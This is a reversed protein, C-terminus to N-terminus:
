SRKLEMLVFRHGDRVMHGYRVFGCKAFCNQARINSELTKLYIRNLSTEQFIHNVLATVADTGYGKNWYNRNGIVIGIQAEGITENIDYCSCNGIHKGSLTEVAFRRTTQYPFHLEWSYDLLYQAFSMTLHTTADLEALEPDSQWEYDNRSDSLKKDRLRVKTATIM